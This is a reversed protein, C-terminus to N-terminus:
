DINRFAFSQVIHLKPIKDLVQASAMIVPMKAFYNLFVSAGIIVNQNVLKALEGKYGLAALKFFIFCRGAFLDM